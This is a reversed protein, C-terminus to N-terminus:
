AEVNDVYIGSGIIWGWDKFLKVFSIKDVPKSFGPKPWQYSVFGEGKKKVVKVMEIFLYKGNPDKNGKLSKGDLQPKFPHMIMKPELDNIWFYDDTNYRLSKILSLVKQQAEDKSMEGHEFKNQYEVLLNYAVEVTQKVNEEKNKYFTTRISPVIYFYIM